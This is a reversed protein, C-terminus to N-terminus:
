RQDNERYYDLVKEVAVVVDKADKDSMSYYLPLTICSEYLEETNKCLGKEYGLEQYYPLWYVPIYHVNVGINEAQLAEFIVKRDTHLLSLKLQIVYLHRTADSQPIVKPLSIETIDKFKSNYYNVIQKRRQSFRELKDLQSCLLAAQIDCIRYNYGLMQQEYYWSGVDKHLLKNSDRTIGHTRTQLAKEYLKDNNTLVAGGEGSTVTKVPHFSFTTIDAISGIMDGEYRSGISHAADEILLLRYRDCIGRLEKLGVAEGMYDVAIIAKTHNTIAKEVSQPSINWSDKDIDAFVPKAGCYLVCNASAAFTMASVIVEDGQGIGAIMCAVHLAATGNCVAVAYRASTIECLKKEMQSVKPGCTLFDSKLASTVEDIDSQDIYHRGYNLLTQRVPKGGNIALQSNSSM